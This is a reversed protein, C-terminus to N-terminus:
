DLLSGVAYESVGHETFLFGPEFGVIKLAENTVYLGSRKGIAIAPTKNNKVFNMMEEKQSTVYHCQIAHGNVLNLGQTDRLGIENEDPDDCFAATDITKGFIIAGASGGFVPMDSRIYKLLLEDFKTARLTHLLLFTNGGGIYIGGFDALDEYHRNSLETWMEFNTVGLEKFTAEFWARCSEFDGNKWAIPIYLIKKDIGVSDVFLKHVTRSDSADGGGGLILKM